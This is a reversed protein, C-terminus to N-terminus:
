MMMELEGGADIYASCGSVNVRFIAVATHASIFVM